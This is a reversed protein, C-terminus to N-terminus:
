SGFIPALRAALDLPPVDGGLGLVDDVAVGVRRGGVECLVIATVEADAAAGVLRRGDVVTVPAGRLVGLGLVTEPAGPLPILAMPEAIDRVIGASLGVISAGVGCRLVAESGSDRM